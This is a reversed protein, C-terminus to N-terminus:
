HNFGARAKRGYAALFVRVCETAHRRLAAPKPIAGDGLLMARNLPESMVLWNFQSAATNTDDVILLELESLQELVKAFAAIARHPGREYLIRALEPFRSVEGIILRRLQRLCNPTQFTPWLERVTRHTLQRLFLLKRSFV